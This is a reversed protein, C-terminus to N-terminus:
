KLTTQSLQPLTMNTLSPSAIKSAYASFEGRSISKEALFPVTLPAPCRERASRGRFVTLKQPFFRANRKMKYGNEGPFPRSEESRGRFTGPIGGSHERFLLPIRGLYQRFVVPIRGPNAPSYGPPYFLYRANKIRHHVNNGPFPRKARLFSCLICTQLLNNADKSCTKFIGTIGFAVM